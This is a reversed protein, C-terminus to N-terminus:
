NAVKIKNKVLIITDTYFGIESNKRMVRKLPGSNPFM